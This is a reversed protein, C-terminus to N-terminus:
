PSKWGEQKSAKSTAELIKERTLNEAKRTLVVLSQSALSKTWSAGEELETEERKVSQIPVAFRDWLKRETLVNMELRLNRASNASANRKRRSKKKEALVAEALHKIEGYTRM